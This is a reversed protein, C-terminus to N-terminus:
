RSTRRVHVAAALVIIFGKVILQAEVPMGLILVVNFVVVLVLAGLLAGLVTGAGGGLVMGGVVAAVISDLEYGRGVWNDVTGVYGALLLGGAGYLVSAVAYCIWTIRSARIGCLEAARPNAGVIYVRRGFASRHLLVGLGVTAAVVVLASVPLGLWLGTGLWRVGAPLEGSPAGQTYAFRLGQLVIMVALTALFPSVGRRVVLFGNTVGVVLACGLCAATTVWPGQAPGLAAALVAVSAMVSGVSLDLGRVLIVLCQGLVALCLPAAQVLLDRLNGASFFAPSLAAACAVLAGLTLALLLVERSFAPNDAGRASSATNPAADVVEAQLPLLTSV